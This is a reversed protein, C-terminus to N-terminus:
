LVRILRSFNTLLDMGDWVASFDLAEGINVVRDIGTPKGELLFRSWEERSIGLSVVTQWNQRVIPLLADLGEVSAELLFGAGTRPPATLFTLDKVRVVRLRNDRTSKIESSSMISISQESVLKDVFDMASFKLNAVDIQNEIESWFSTSAAAVAGPAGRWILCRPSSCAMQGFWYVDNVFARALTPKNADSLWTAADLVALSTKDTFCVEVAHPKMPSQRITRITEDGGWIVRLDCMTSLQDTIIKDHEYQVIGITQGLAGIDGGALVDRLVEVLLEIQGSQRSSIRVINKNGALVSLVLSYIFITDVNAPAIHFALGRPARVFGTYASLYREKLRFINAGRAWYGLSTMEPLPRLRRDSLLHKSLSRVFSMADEGFPQASPSASISELTQGVPAVFISSIPGTMM